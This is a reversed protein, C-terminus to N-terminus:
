YGTVRSLPRTKLKRVKYRRRKEKETLIPPLPCRQHMQIAIAAALVRDDYCGDRARPKGNKDRIFTWMESVLGASMPKFSKERVAKALDDCMIPRTVTDTRWGLKDTPEIDYDMHDLKTERLFLRRYNKRAAAKNATLGHNNVEIGLWAENYWTALYVCQEGFLDPDIHGWWEAVQRGTDRDIVVACSYDGHELGEAVDAGVVYRHGPQPVDWIELYGHSHKEFGSETINGKLGQWTQEQLEALINVDFFPKDVAMFAEEPSAPYEIMYTDKMAKKTAEYWAQDRRPDSWWPLFIHAFGNEGRVAGRWIQEFLTGRQGTSLGIVQGGTPRNVVPFGARWIEEAWQQFAWEDLIILNATFSRGSDPAASLSRFMSPENDPHHITVQLSLAEWVAGKYGKPETGKERAMWPPLRKLIFVLRRILEKAEPDEKRSIAVVLFGPRFLMCWLAYALVLWTLGLQRAKLIITLRNTRITELAEKQKPWLTFPVALGPSDRDEIQVYREIFEQVSDRAQKLWIEVRAAAQLILERRTKAPLRSKPKDTATARAM